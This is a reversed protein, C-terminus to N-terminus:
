NLGSPTFGLEVEYFPAVYEKPLPPLPNSKVVAKYASEDLYRNGSRKEFWIDKIEGDPMIKVVLVTELEDHLGALHEPFAWNKQIHFIIEAQYYNLQTRVQGGFLSSGGNGGSGDGDSGKKVNQRIKEIAALVTGTKKKKKVADPRKKVKPATAAPQKQPTKEPKTVKKEKEPEKKEPEKKEPEKKEPKKISIEAEPEPPIEPKEVIKEAPKVKETIKEPEVVMEPESAPPEAVPIQAPKEITPKEGQGALSVMQVNIVSSTPFKREPVYASAYILLVGVISHCLISILFTIFYSYQDNEM